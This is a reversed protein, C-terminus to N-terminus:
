SGADEDSMDDFGGVQVTTRSVADYVEVVATVREPLGDTEFYFADSVRWEGQPSSTLEGDHHAIESGDAPDRIAVRVRACAPAGDGRWAARLAMFEDGGDDEVLYTGDGEGLQTWTGPASGVASELITANSPANTCTSPDPIAEDRPAFLCGGCILLLGLWGLARRRKM